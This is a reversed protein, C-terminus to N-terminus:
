PGTDEPVEEDFIDAFPDAGAGGGGDSCGLTISFVPSSAISADGVPEGLDDVAIRTGPGLDREAAYATAAVPEPLL